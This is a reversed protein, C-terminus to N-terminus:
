LDSLSSPIVPTIFLLSVNNTAAIAIINERPHYSAVLGFNSRLEIQSINFSRVTCFRKISISPIWILLRNVTSAKIPIKLGPVTKIGKSERCKRQKLLPNIPKYFSMRQRKGITFIFIIIILDPSFMGLKRYLILVLRSLQILFRSVRWRWLVHM